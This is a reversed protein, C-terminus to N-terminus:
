SSNSQLRIMRTVKNGENRSTLTNVYTQEGSSNGIPQEVIPSITNPGHSYTAKRSIDERWHAHLIEFNRYTRSPQDARM